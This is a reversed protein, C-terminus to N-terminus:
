EKSALGTVVFEKGLVKYFLILLDIDSDSRADSGYLIAQAGPAVRRIVERIRNVIESRRM